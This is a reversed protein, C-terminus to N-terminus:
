QLKIIEARLDHEVALMQGDPLASWPPTPTAEADPTVVVVARLHEHEAVRPSHGKDVKERCVPCARVGDLRYFWLPAAGSWALLVRGNTMMIATPGLSGPAVREVVALAGALAQGAQRPTTAADDLRNSEHLFGLVLHFLHESDTQGRINRRLFEPIEAVLRPQLAAFGAADGGITGHHAFLWSRFRFPHTNETKEGGVTARRAHGVALDTRLASMVAYFDITEASRKPRRQLLVEGGQYFGIGWGDHSPSPGVALQAHGPHLVCRVRDPDNSIMAFMRSM